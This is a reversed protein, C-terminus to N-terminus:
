VDFSTRDSSFPRPGTRGTAITIMGVAARTTAAPPKRSVIPLSPIILSVDSRSPPITSMSFLSLVILWRFDQDGESPEARNPDVKSGRQLPRLAAM